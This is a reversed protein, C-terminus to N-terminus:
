SVKKGKSKIPPDVVRLLEPQICMGGLLQVLGNGLVAVVLLPTPKVDKPLYLFQVYDGPHIM